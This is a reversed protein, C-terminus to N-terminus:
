EAVFIFPYVDQGGEAFYAEVDPFEKAVASELEAVDAATADKGTFVTLMTKEGGDFISHLVAKATDIKNEASATIQKAMIGIFEGKNVHVGNMDADRISPSISATVAGKMSDYIQAEIDEPTEAEFDILSLGIYGAGLDKSEIVHIQADEYIEAAQKAALVINGNNPFVFIHEAKVKKFADLFDATSPNQTQGGNVIVDVGMETFIQAIGDGQAVSVIGYKKAPTNDIQQKETVEKSENHQVSMNEIKVTLLEGFQRCYEIVAGPTMTHVHVKIISDTKFSVISNGIGQLYETITDASFAEVDVKKNQLQLLFETCYGFEMESDPGFSSLDVTPQKVAPKSEMLADLKQGNLVKNFGDMIYFLGAGGSDVVSAERLAALLDPTRQLSAYMETLLDDFLTKITSDENLRSVAHDVAERAVTLITGETPTLVSAYAQKVGRKLAKGVSDVDAVICGELEVAMGAFMQSLIVGSNGRAGLLMGKSLSKMVDALGDYQSVGDLAAVGGEITMCMNDGTDGDPVPFVNLNNVEEANSRLQAAGGRVMKAFLEGDLFKENESNTNNNNNASDM